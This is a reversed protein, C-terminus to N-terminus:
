PTRELARSSLLKETAVRSMVALWQARVRDPNLRDARLTRAELGLGTPGATLELVQDALETAGGSFLAGPVLAPIFERAVRHDLSVVPLGADAAEFYVYGFTEGLSPHVLIDADRYVATMASPAVQGLFSVRDALGLRLTLQELRPREPGDGAIVLTFVEPLAALARLAVEQNKTRTLSGVALLRTGPTRRAHLRGLLTAEDVVPFANNITTTRIRPSLDGIDRALVDGVCVVAAARPFLLRALVQLLRLSRSSASKERSLSHEWILTRAALRPAVLLWPISAWVGVAVYVTDPDASRAYRRLAPLSRIRHWGTRKPGLVTVSLGAPGAHDDGLSVVEVRNGAALLDALELAARELGLTPYLHSLVLVIRPTTASETM